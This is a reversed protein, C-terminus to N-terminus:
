GLPSPLDRTAQGAQWHLPTARLKAVLRPLRSVETKDYIGRLLFRAANVSVGRMAAFDELSGGEALNAALRAEAPTLGFWERLHDVHAFSARHNVGAVIMLRVPGFAPNFPQAPQEETRLAMAALGPREPAELLFAACRQPAAPEALARLRKTQVPDAFSLRGDRSALYRQRLLGEGLDNAYTIRLAEDCMLIASPARDLAARASSASLEAEGLRRAIRVSRQLHPVLLKLAVELRRPRGNDPGPTCLCLHDRGHRDLLAILGVELEFTVLFDTFFPTKRFARREILQDSHFVSGVPMDHGRVSWDNNGAFVNVYGHRAMANVGSNGVFRGAPPSVREWLLMAIDWRDQGFRSVLGTLAVEWHQPSLAADYIDAVVADFDALDIKAAM